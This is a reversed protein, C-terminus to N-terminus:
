AERDAKELAARNIRWVEHTSTGTKRSVTFADGRTVIWGRARWKRQIDLRSILGGYSEFVRTVLAAGPKIDYGTEDDFGMAREGEVLVRQGKGDGRQGEKWEAERLATLLDRMVRLADDAERRRAKASEALYAVAQEVPVGEGTVEQILALGVHLLALSVADDAVARHRAQYVRERHSLREMLETVRTNYQGALLAGLQGHARAARKLTDAVEKSDPPLPHGALEITRMHAGGTVKEAMAHEAAYFAVGFREEGGQAELTPTSTRRQQGGGFGLSLHRLAQQGEPTESLTHLDDLFVPLDPLRTAADQAGKVTSGSSMRVEEERMWVSLAFGIVSNKGTSTPAVLGIWPRRIDRTLAVQRVLPSAAAFGLFVLSLMGAEGLDLVAKLGSLWTGLSGEPRRLTGIFTVGQTEYLAFLSGNWGLRTALRLERKDRFHTVAENLYSSVQRRSAETVPLGELADSFFCTGARAERELVWARCVEGGPTLWGLEVYLAHTRSAGATIARGQRLPVLLRPTLPQPRQGSTLAKVGGATILYREGLGDLDLRAQAEEWLGTHGVRRQAAQVQGDLFTRLGDRGQREHLDCFDEQRDSRGSPVRGELPPLVLVDGAGHAGLQRGWAEAASLEDAYVIATRRPVESLQPVSQSAGAMGITFAGTALHVSLANLPGEVVYITGAKGADGYCAVPSPGRGDERRGLRPLYKGKKVDRRPHRKQVDLLAGHPGYLPMTLWGDDTVGFGAQVYEAKSIGRGSASEPLPGGALRAQDERLATLMVEDRIPSPLQGKVRPAAAVRRPQTSLAGGGSFAILTDAAEKRSQGLYLLLEFLGGEAHDVQSAFVARRGKMRVVFGDSDSGPIHPRTGRLEHETRQQFRYGPCVQRILGEVKGLHDFADIAETLEQDRRTYAEGRM